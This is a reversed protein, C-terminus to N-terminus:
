SLDKTTLLTERDGTWGCPCRYTEMDYPQNIHQTNCSPCMWRQTPTPALIVTKGLTGNDRAKKYTQIAPVHAQQREITM